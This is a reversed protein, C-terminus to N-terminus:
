GNVLRRLHLFLDSALLGREGDLVARDGAAAHLSVGARAADGLSLGQAVLAAIVGTLVDGMGGAAMGPNGESCLAIAGQEDAILSGAGKLVIVAQYREHLKQVAAFRDANIEHSTTQLLRAAEGPHPTLIWNDRTCPEQALLNLADADVILPLSSDLVRSLLQQAWADQGLGPGIAVVTARALLPTLDSAENVGHWMIEPRAAAMANVHESRTAVSTLGAGTRAAAEAALRAAGAMGHNGGIVLVHGFLGKHANRPRPPLFSKQQTWDIRTASPTVEDYVALPVGLDEFRIAGCYEPGAGTLLGQKLGIFTVTAAARVACGLVAGTDACLGSPIDVALVPVGSGNIAQIVNAVAGEVARDLGIGFIADVIVDVDDFVSPKFPVRVLGAAQAAGWAKRADGKLTAPDTVCILIPTIGQELALRAVVFGDGGNNGGGCVVAIRRTDPWRVLLEECLAAGARNMLEIGPVVHTEIAQRDLERVAAARYLTYPLQSM